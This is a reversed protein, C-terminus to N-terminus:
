CIEDRLGILLESLDADIEPKAIETAISECFQAELERKLDERGEDYGNDFCDAPDDADHAAEMEDFLRRANDLLYVQADKDTEALSILENLTLSGHNM